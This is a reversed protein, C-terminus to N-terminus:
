EDPGVEFGCYCQNDQCVVHLDMIQGVVSQKCRQACNSVEGTCSTDCNEERKLLSPDVYKSYVVACNYLSMMTLLYIIFLISKVMLKRKEKKKKKNM